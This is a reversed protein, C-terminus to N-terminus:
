RYLFDYIKSTITKMMLTTMAVHTVRALLGRTAFGFTGSLGGKEIEQKFVQIVGVKQNANAAQQFIAVLVDLPITVLASLTGGALSAFIQM